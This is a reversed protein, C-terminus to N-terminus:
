DNFDRNVFLNNIKVTPQGVRVNLTQGNKFCYSIGKDYRFDDAVMDVSNLAEM